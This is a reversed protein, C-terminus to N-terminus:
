YRKSSASSSKRKRIALYSTIVALVITAAIFVYNLSRSLALEGLAADYNSKLSGYSSNLSEYNQRLADYNSSLSELDERLSTYNTQLSSFVLHLSNYNTLLSNYNTLLSNYNASLSNYNATLSNYNASLSNYNLLLQTQETLLAIYDTSTKNYNALLPHYQNLLDTYNALLSYYTTNLSLYEPSPVFETITFTFNFTVPGYNFVSSDVRITHNGVDSLPPESPVTLNYNYSGDAGTVGQQNLIISVGDWFIDAKDVNGLTANKTSFRILINTNANGESPLIEAEIPNGQAKIQVVGISIVLGLFILSTLTVTGLKFKKKKMPYEDHM